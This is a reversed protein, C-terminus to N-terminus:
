WLRETSRGWDHLPRPKTQVAEEIEALVAPTLLPLLALAKMNEDVQAASLRQIVCNRRCVQSPRSAGTIVTSVRQLNSDDIREEFVIHFDGQEDPM